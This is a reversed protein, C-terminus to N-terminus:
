RTLRPFFPHEDSRNYNIGELVALRAFALHHISVCLVQGERVGEGVFHPTAGLEVAPPGRGLKWVKEGSVQITFNVQFDYHPPTVHNSASHFTEVEGYAYNVNGLGLGLDDIYMKTLQLSFHCPTLLLM